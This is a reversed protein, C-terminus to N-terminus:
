PPAPVSEQCQLCKCESLILRVFAELCTDKRPDYEAQSAILSHKQGAHMLKSRGPGTAGFVREARKTPEIGLGQLVAEGVELAKRGLMKALTSMAMTTGYGKTQVIKEPANEDKNPVRKAQVRYQAADPQAGGRIPWGRPKRM